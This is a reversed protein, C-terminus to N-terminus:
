GRDREHSWVDVPVPEPYTHRPGDFFERSLTEHEVPELDVVEGVVWEGLFERRFTSRTVAPWLSTPTFDPHVIPRATEVRRRLNAVDRVHVILCVTIIILAVLVAIVGAVALAAGSM